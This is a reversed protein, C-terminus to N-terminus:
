LWPNIKPTLTSDDRKERIVRLVHQSVTKGNHCWLQEPKDEPSGWHAERETRDMFTHKNVKVCYVEPVLAVQQVLYLRGGRGPVCM